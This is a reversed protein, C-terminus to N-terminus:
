RRRSISARDRARGRPRTAEALLGGGCGVDAVAAGDLRVRAGIFALRLPNLAHLTHLPGAPDWYQHAVAEFKRLEAPDVHTAPNMAAPPM